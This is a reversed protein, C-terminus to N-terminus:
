LYEDRPRMTRSVAVAEGEPNRIYQSFARAYAPRFTRTIYQNMRTNNPVLRQSETGADAIEQRRVVRGNPDRIAYVEGPHDRLLNMLQAQQTQQVGTLMRGGGPLRRTLEVVYTRGNLEVDYAFVPPRVLAPVMALRVEAPRRVSFETALIRRADNPHNLINNLARATTQVATVDVNSPITVRQGRALPKALTLIQRSQAATFGASTLRQLVQADIQQQTMRGTEQKTQQKQAM